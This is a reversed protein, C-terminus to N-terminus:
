ETYECCNSAAKIMMGREASHILLVTRFLFAPMVKGATKETKISSLCTNRHKFIKITKNRSYPSSDM